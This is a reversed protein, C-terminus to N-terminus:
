CLYHGEWQHIINWDKSSLSLTWLNSSADIHQWWTDNGNTCLRKSRNSSKMWFSLPPWLCFPLPFMPGKAAICALRLFWMLFVDMSICRRKTIWRFHCVLKVGPWVSMWAVALSKNMPTALCCSSALDENLPLVFRMVVSLNHCADSRFSDAEKFWHVWLVSVELRVKPLSVGEKDFTKKVEEAPNLAAPIQM